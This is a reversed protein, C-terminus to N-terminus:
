HSGSRGDQSKNYDSKFTLVALKNRRRVMASFFYHLNEADETVMESAQLQLDRDRLRLEGRLLRKVYEATVEQHM